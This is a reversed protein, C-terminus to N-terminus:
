IWMGYNNVAFEIQLMLRDRSIPPTGRHFCFTDEAFGFGAQGQITVLNKEGYYDFIEDDSRGILLSLQHTLKKKKHSGRICVHPGSSLDVDTLFFFFKLAQYDDLDYHFLIQADGNQEYLSREGVFCWSLDTRILAPECGLYQAAIKLLKPDNELKNIASVRSRADPYFGRICTDSSDETRLQKKDAYTFTLNSHSRAQISSSYAFQTIENLIGPPLNIGLCYGLRQVSEVAQEVELDQFLSDEEQYQDLDKAQHFLSVLNRIM